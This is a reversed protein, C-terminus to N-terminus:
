KLAIMCKNSFLKHNMSVDFTPSLLMLKPTLNILYILNGSIVTTIEPM